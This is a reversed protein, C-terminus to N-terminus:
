QAVLEFRAYEQKFTSDTQQIYVPLNFLLKSVLNNMKKIEIYDSNSYHKDPFMFLFNGDPALEWKMSGALIGYLYIEMIGDNTFIFSFSNNNLDSKKSIIILEDGYAKIRELEELDYDLQYEWALNLISSTLINWDNGM